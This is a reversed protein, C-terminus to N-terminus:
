DLIVGRSRYSFTKCVRKGHATIIFQFSNFVYSDRM